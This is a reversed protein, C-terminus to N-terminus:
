VVAYVSLDYNNASTLRPRASDNQPLKSCKRLCRSWPSRIYAFPSYDVLLDQKYFFILCYSYLTSYFPKLASVLIQVILKIVLISNTAISKKKPIMRHFYKFVLIM